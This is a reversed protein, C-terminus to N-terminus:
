ISTSGAREDPVRERGTRDATPVAEVQRRLEHVAMEQARLLEEISLLPTPRTPEAVRILDARRAALLLRGASREQAELVSRHDRERDDVELLHRALAATGTQLQHEAATIEDDRTRSIRVIETLESLYEDYRHPSPTMSASVTAPDLRVRGPPCAQWLFDGGYGRLPLAPALGDISGLLDPDHHLVVSVGHEPGTRMLEGLAVVTEDALGRPYDLVVLLRPIDARTTRSRALTRVVEAFREPTRSVERHGRGAPDFRHTDLSPVIAEVRDVVATFLEAVVEPAGGSIVLNGRGILPFVVPVVDGAGFSLEGVQVSCGDFPSGVAGEAVAARARVCRERVLADAVVHAAAIRRTHAAETERRQLCARATASAALSDLRIRAYSGLTFVATAAM